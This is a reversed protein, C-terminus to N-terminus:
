KYIDAEVCTNKEIYFHAFKDLESPWCINKLISMLISNSIVIEKVQLGYVLSWIYQLFLVM